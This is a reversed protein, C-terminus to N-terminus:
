AKRFARIYRRCFRDRGVLAEGAKLGAMIDDNLPDLIAADLGAFIAMHLFALNLKARAPLGFSVNSLGISTKAQPFREKIARLTQLTVLGQQYDTGVPLVLPDFFVNGLDIGCSECAAAVKECARVREEVTKPIGHEDM